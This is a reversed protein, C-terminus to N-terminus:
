PMPVQPSGSGDVRSYERGRSIRIVTQGVQDDQLYSLPHQAAKVERM